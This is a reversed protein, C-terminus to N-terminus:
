SGRDASAVPEQRDPVRVLAGPRAAGALEATVALGLHLAASSCLSWLLLAIVAILPGYTSSGGGARFYVGLLIAFATWLVVAVVVGAALEAAPAPRGRPATWFLLFVGATALVVGIPWRGITWLSGWGTAEAVARGGGMILAGVALVMGGTAALVLAVAYREIGPRDKSSGFLRNASREFQAMAFTGAVLAAGLGVIMATTAGASGQRAAEEILRSSPGPTLDRGLRVVIRRITETGSVSALGVVGIYSSILVFVSQFALARTHSTGDAGRFRRVVGAAFGAAGRRRVVARV